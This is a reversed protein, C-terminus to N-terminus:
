REERKPSEFSFALATSKISPTDPGRREDSEAQAEYLDEMLGEFLGAVKAWRDRTADNVHYSVDSLPAGLEDALEKPSM